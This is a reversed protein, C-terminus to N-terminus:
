AYKWQYGGCTKRRGKLCRCIGGTSKGVTRAADAVSDFRRLFNGATDFQLVAIKKKNAISDLYESCDIDSYQWAYGGATKRKGQLCLWIGSPSIGIDKAASQISPYIKMTRGAEDLKTVPRNKITGHIWKEGNNEYCWEYGASTQARGKLCEVISESKRGVEKAALRVSEYRKVTGDPAFRLVPESYVEQRVRQNRTGHHVQEYYTAWELNVCRNDTKIENLHNVTPKNDPNPIFALAVMRHVREQRYKGNLHLSVICYGDKDPKSRLLKGTDTNMVRGMNSVSYKGESIVDPKWIECVM